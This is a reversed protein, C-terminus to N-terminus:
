KSPRQSEIRGESHHRLSGTDSRRETRRPFPNSDRAAAEEKPPPRLRFCPFAELPEGDRGNGRGWRTCEAPASRTCLPHSGSRGQRLRLALAPSSFSPTSPVTKLSWTPARQSRSLHHHHISGTPHSALAFMTGPYTTPLSRWSWGPPRMKTPPLLPSRTPPASAAAWGAAQWQGHEEGGWGARLPRSFHRPSTFPAVSRSFSPLTM